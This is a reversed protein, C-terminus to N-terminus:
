LLEEDRYRMERRHEEERIKNRFDICSCCQCRDLKIKKGRMNINGAAAHSPGRPARHKRNRGRGYIPSKAM